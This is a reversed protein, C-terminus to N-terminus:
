MERKIRLARAAAPIMAAVQVLAYSVAEADLVGAHQACRRPRARLRWHSVVGTLPMGPPSALGRSMSARSRRAALLPSALHATREPAALPPSSRVTRIQFGAVPAAKTM